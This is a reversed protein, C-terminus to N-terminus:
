QVLPRFLEVARKKGHFTIFAGFERGDDLTFSNMSGVPATSHLFEIAKERLEPTVESNLLLTWGSPPAPPTPDDEIVPPAEQTPSPCKRRSAAVLLALGALTAIAVKGEPTM